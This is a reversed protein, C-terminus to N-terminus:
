GVFFTQFNQVINVGRYESSRYTKHCEYWHGFFIRTRHARAVIGWTRNHYIALHIGPIRCKKQVPIRTRTCCKLYGGPVETLETLSAYLARFKKSNRVVEMGTGPVETYKKRSECGQGTDVFGVSCYRIGPVQYNKAEAHELYTGPLNFVM